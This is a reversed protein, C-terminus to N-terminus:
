ALQVNGDRDGREGEQLMGLHGQRTQEGLKAVVVELEEMM